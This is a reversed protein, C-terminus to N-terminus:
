TLLGKSINKKRGAGLNPTAEGWMRNRKAAKKGASANANKQNAAKPKQSKSRDEYLYEADGKRKVARM